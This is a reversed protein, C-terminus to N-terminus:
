QSHRSAVTVVYQLKNALDRGSAKPPLQRGDAKYLAIADDVLDCLEAFVAREDLGHCGRYVLGAASGVCCQDVDSWEVIKVCRM